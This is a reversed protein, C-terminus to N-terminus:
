VDENAMLKDHRDKHRRYEKLLKKKASKTLAEGEGDHTPVGDEDFKSYKGKYKTRFLEGPPIRM